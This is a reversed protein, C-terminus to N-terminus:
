LQLYAGTATRRCAGALISDGSINVHHQALTGQLLHNQLHACDITLGELVYASMAM